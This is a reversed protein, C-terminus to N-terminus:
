EHRTIVRVGGKGGMEEEMEKMKEDVIEKYEEQTVSKGKTPAAIEGEAFEKFEINTATLKRQGDDLTMELVIGPLGVLLDPGTGIPIQPTFWAEIKKSTDASIAQLCLMDMIPKQEGTMKWEYTRLEGAILFKKGFFEELQVTQKTTLNKYIQNDPMSRVMKFKFDGGDAEITEPGEDSAKNKFLSHEATFYLEKQTKNETPIEIAMAKVEEPLDIQIQVVEEYTIIGSTHQGILWAPLLLLLLPLLYQQM